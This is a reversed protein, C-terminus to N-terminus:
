PPRSIGIGIGWNQAALAKESEEKEPTILMLQGDATPAELSSNAIENFDDGEGPAADTLGVLSKYFQLRYSPSLRSHLLQDLAGNAENLQREKMDLLLNNIITEHSARLVSMHETDKKEKAALLGGGLSKLEGCLEIAKQLLLNFRYNPIPGSM